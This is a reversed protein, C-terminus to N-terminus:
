QRALWALPDTPKGRERIEFYLGVASHGGSQGVSAIAEGREVWDGLRVYLSDAAGYLSMREDGHDVIALLGFGRLWDAFAVRGPAISRVETGTPARFYVGQWRTRRTRADGFRHQVQGEVPWPLDGRTGMGAQRRGVPVSDRELKALLSGLRERSAALLEHERSKAGVDSQLDAILRGRAMREDALGQRQELLSRRLSEARHQQDGLETETRRITEATDRLENIIKGRAEAFRAHYRALRELTAPNEQNLWVKLPDRESFRWADRLHAAVHQQQERRAQDLRERETRLSQVQDETAAIRADLDRVQRVNDAIKRDVDAIQRQRETLRADADDLWSDLANLRQVVAALESQPDEAGHLGLGGVLASLALLRLPDHAPPRCRAPPCTM